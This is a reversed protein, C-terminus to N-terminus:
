YLVSMHFPITSTSLGSSLLAFLMQNLVSPLFHIGSKTPTLGKVAQFYIAMYYATILMAGMFFFNTMCAAAIVRNRVMNLPIMATAGRRSEWKVFLVCTAASGCLLGIIKVSRWAYTNGGWEMALLLM